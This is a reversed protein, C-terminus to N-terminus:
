WMKYPKRVLNANAYAPNDTVNKGAWDPLAYTEDESKLEIEAVLLGANNGKFEDVEWTKGKFTVHYRNKEILHNCFLKLLENAHALPIEYEYEPRSAKETKGKITIYAKKGATRIRITKAPDSHLYGQKIAVSKKPKVKKWQAPKVLYKHETETPM